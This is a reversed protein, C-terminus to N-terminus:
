NIYGLNRLQELVERSFQSEVEDKDARKRDGFTEIIKEKLKTVRDETFMDLAPKGEFDRSQPFGMMLMLTPTIDVASLTENSKKGSVGPGMIFLRGHIAESPEESGTGMRGNTAILVTYSDARGFGAMRGLLRDLFEYYTKVLMLRRNLEGLDRKNDGTFIKNQLIDAGPLYLASVKVGYKSLLLNYVKMYFWDIWAAERLAESGTKSLGGRAGSFFEDFEAAFKEKWGPYLKGLEGYLSEPEIDREYEGGSELKYMVRESAMFGNIEDCPWSAWWNVVGASLTKDNFINWFTKSRRLSATIPVSSSLKSEPILVGFLWAIPSDGSFIQLPTDMGAVRRASIDGIGHKLPNMGTAVSTWYVPPVFAGENKLNVSSAKSAFRSLNPLKGEGKMKEMLDVNLGDIGVIRLNQKVFRVSYESSERETPETISTGVLYFLFGFLIIAVAAFIFLHKRRLRIVKGLQFDIEDRALLRMAGLFTIRGTAFSLLFILVFALLDGLGSGSTAKGGSAKIWWVSGYTFVTLAILISTVLSVNIKRAGGRVMRQILTILGGISIAVVTFILSLVLWLYIVLLVIDKINGTIGPNLNVLSMSILISSFFAFFVGVKLCALFYHLFTYGKLRASRLLFGDLKDDLYGASKLLERLDNKDNKIKKKKDKKEAM